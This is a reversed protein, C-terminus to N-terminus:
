EAEEVRQMVFIANFRKGCDECVYMVCCELGDVISDIEDVNPCRCYPCNKDVSATM